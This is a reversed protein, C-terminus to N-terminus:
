ELYKELFLKSFRIIGLDYNSTDTNGSVILSGYLDGNIILPFISFIGELYGYNVLKM